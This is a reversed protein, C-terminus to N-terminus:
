HLFNIFLCYGREVSPRRQKKQSGCTRINKGLFAFTRNNGGGRSASVQRKYMPSHLAPYGLHTRLKATLLEIQVRPFSCPPCSPLSALCLWINEVIYKKWHNFQLFIMNVLSENLGLLPQAQCFIM